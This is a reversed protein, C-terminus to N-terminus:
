QSGGPAPRLGLLLNVLQQYEGSPVPLTRGNILQMEVQHGHSRPLMAIAEINVIHEGIEVFKAM